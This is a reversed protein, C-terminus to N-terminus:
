WYLSILSIQSGFCIGLVPVGRFCRMAFVTNRIEHLDDKRSLCLPSGSIIIASVRGHHRLLNELSDNEGLV